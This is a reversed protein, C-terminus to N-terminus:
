RSDLALEVWETAILSDSSFLAVINLPAVIRVPSVRVRALLYYRGPDEPEIRGVVCDRLAFFHYLFDRQESFSVVTRGEERIVYRNTFLDFAAIRSERWAAVPRDGLWEMLGTQRRYLRLEFVIESKLGEHVAALVSKVPPSRLDVSAFLTHDESRVSLDVEQAPIPHSCLLLVAVLALGRITRSRKSSARSCACSRRSPRRRM